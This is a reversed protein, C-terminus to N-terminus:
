PRSTLLRPPPASRLWVNNNNHKHPFGQAAFQASLTAYVYAIFQNNQCNSADTQKNTKQNAATHTSTLAGSSGFCQGMLRFEAKMQNAEIWRITSHSSDYPSCMFRRLSKSPIRIILNRPNRSFQITPLFNLGFLKAFLRAHCTATPQAPIQEIAREVEQRRASRKTNRRRRHSVMDRVDYVVWVISKDKALDNSEMLTQSRGFDDWFSKWSLQYIMYWVRMVDASKNPGMWEGLIWESMRERCYSYYICVNHATRTENTSGLRNM